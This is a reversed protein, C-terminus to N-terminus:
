IASLMGSAVIPTTPADYSSADGPEYTVALTAGSAILDSLAKRLAIQSVSADRGQTSRPLAGIALPPQEGVIIWLVPVSGTPEGKGLNSDVVRVRLKAEGPEASAVMLPGGEEGSLQAVVLRREPPSAEAVKPRDANASAPVGQDTPSIILIAALVAAAAASGFAAWRWGPAVGGTQNENAPSPLSGSVAHHAGRHSEIRDLRARIEPYLDRPPERQDFGAFLPALQAEWRRVEGAFAADTTLLELADSREARDLLGLVLEAAMLMREDADMPKM